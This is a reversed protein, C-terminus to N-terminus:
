RMEDNNLKAGCHYCFKAIPEKIEGNCVPCRRLSQIYPEFFPEQTAM